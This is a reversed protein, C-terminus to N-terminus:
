SGRRVLSAVLWGLAMLPWLKGIWQLLGYLRIQVGGMWNHLSAQWYPDAGLLNVLGLLWTTILLALVANWRPPLCAMGLALCLATGLAPWTEPTVWSWAKDAGFGVSASLTSCGVGVALAGLVLWLRPWGVRTAALVLGIPALMGLTTALFDPLAAGARIQPWPGLQAWGRESLLAQVEAYLGPMFQGLALPAPAPFLLGFPWLALLALAGATQPEFWRERWRAMRGLRGSAILLAAVAAGLLVGATNLAWDALSPVRSVAFFQLVEMGYALLSPLVAGLVVGWVWRGGSRWVALVGLLGLPAYGLANASVDLRLWYRPWPLQLVQQWRLAGPWEWPGFPYLSAYVVLTLYALWLWTISSSRLM